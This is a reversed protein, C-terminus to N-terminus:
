LFPRDEKPESGFRLVHRDPDSVKMEYAWPYNEPAHDITAGAAQYERYLAEADEVGIWM